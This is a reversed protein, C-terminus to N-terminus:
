RWEYVVEAGQVTRQVLGLAEIRPQLAAFDPYGATDVLVYTVGLQRLLAASEASPFGDLVPQIRAYQSPLFAAFFGGIFPKGHFQSYYTQQQDVEEKFPFQAVAGDGPQSALWTDVPRPQVSSFKNYPGPYFDLFVLVLIAGAALVRRGPRVKGLLWATGLGALASSALLVLLGFRMMARMKAFFPFYLFMLYGPLPVPISERHVWRQLFGPVSVTVAQGLWHLNTGMALI